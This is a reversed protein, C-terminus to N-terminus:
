FNIGDDEGSSNVTTNVKPESRDPAKSFEFKVNNCIKDADKQTMRGQEVLGRLDESKLRAHLTDGENIVLPFPSEGIYEKNKNKAREFKVFYTVPSTENKQYRILRAINNFWKKSM